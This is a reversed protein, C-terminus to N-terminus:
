PGEVSARRSLFVAVVSAQALLKAASADGDGVLKEFTMMVVRLLLLLLLRGRLTRLWRWSLRQVLMVRPWLLRWARRLLLPLLLLPGLMLLCRPWLLM